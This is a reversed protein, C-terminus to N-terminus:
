TAKKKNLRCFPKFVKSMLSCIMDNKDLSCYRKFARCIYYIALVSLVIFVFDPIFVWEFGKGEKIVKFMGGELNMGMFGTLLSLILLPTAIMTLENIAKQEKESQEIRIFEDLKEIEEKVGKFLEDIEYAKRQMEFMEIGQEQNTVEKFYWVNSFKLFDHRLKKVENNSTWDGKKILDRTVKSSREAFDILACRYFLNLIAMQYYVTKFNTELFDPKGFMLTMDAYRCFGYLTGVHEWRTYLHKKLFPKIFRPNYLYNNAFDDVYLLRSFLAIGQENFRKKEEDFYSKKLDENLCVLGHVIMRDDLLPTYDECYKLPDLLTKVISNIDKPYKKEKDPNIVFHAEDSFTNQISTNKISVDKYIRSDSIQKTDSVYLLRFLKNFELADKLSCSDNKIGISLIGIKNDKFCFLRIDSLCFNSEKNNLIIKNLSTGVGLERLREDSLRYSTLFTDENEDSSINYMARRIYIHFYLLEQNNEKFSNSKGDWLKFTEEQWSKNFDQPLENQIKFPFFFFTSYHNVESANNTSM